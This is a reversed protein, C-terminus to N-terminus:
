KDNGKQEGYLATYHNKYIEAARSKGEPNPPGGAPPTATDAGKRENTGIFDSWEKKISETLKDADELTEGGKGLKMESLNTVKMISDLRKESVGAKALLERYLRAKTDSEAKATVDAKFKDYEAKTTEYKEKYSDKGELSKQAEALDAKAKDLDKQISDSADAKEKLQNIEDKLGNVTESHAEIIQDVKEAEIGLANLFKRTLAM